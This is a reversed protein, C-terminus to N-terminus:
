VPSLKLLSDIFLLCKNRKVRSVNSIMIKSEAQTLGAEVGGTSCDADPVVV